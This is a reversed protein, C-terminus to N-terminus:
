ELTATATGDDNHVIRVSGVQQRPPVNVTVAPAAVNVVPVPQAELADALRDLRDCLAAITERQESVAVALRTLLENAEPMEAKVVPSVEVRVDAPPPPSVTVAPAKVEVRPSALLHKVMEVALDSGRVAGATDNVAQLIFRELRGREEKELALRRRLVDGMAGALADLRQKMVTGVADLVADAPDEVLRNM